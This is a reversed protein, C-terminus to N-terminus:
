VTSSIQVEADWVKREEEDRDMQRQILARLVMTQTVERGLKRTQEITKNELWEKQGPSIKISIVETFVKHMGKPM